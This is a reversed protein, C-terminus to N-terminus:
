DRKVEESSLQFKPDKRFEPSLSMRPDPRNRNSGLELDSNCLFVSIVKVQLPSSIVDIYRYLICVTSM